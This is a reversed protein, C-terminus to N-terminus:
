IKGINGGKKAPKAPKHKGGTIPLPEWVKAAPLQRHRHCTYYRGLLYRNSLIYHLIHTRKHKPRYPHFKLCCSSRTRTSHLYTGIYTSFCSLESEWWVLSWDGHKPVIIRTRSKKLANFELEWVDVLTPCSDNPPSPIYKNIMYM